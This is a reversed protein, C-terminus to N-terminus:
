RQIIALQDQIDDLLRLNREIGSYHFELQSKVADMKKMNEMTHTICSEQSAFNKAAQSLLDSSKSCRVVQRTLSGIDNINAAIKENLRTKTEQNWSAAAM